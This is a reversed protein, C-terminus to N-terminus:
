YLPVDGANVPLEAGGLDRGYGLTGGGGNGWCRVGGRELLVCTHTGGAVIQIAREGIEVDPPPMEGQEDGLSLWEGVEPDFTPIGDGYGLAGYRLYGWCRVKGNALLACTHSDGTAVQVAPGGLQVPGIAHPAEDDGIDETSEHGLKGFEGSGWCSVEGSELVACTHASRLTIQVARGGVDLDGAEALGVPEGYGYGSAVYDGTWCRVSGSDLLVCAHMPGLVMRRIAKQSAAREPPGYYWFDHRPRAGYCRVEGDDMKVCTRGDGAFVDVVPRDLPIEPPPMEGPEDGVAEGFGDIAFGLVGPSGFEWGWCRVNGRELIACTHYPGAALQVARGGLDVDGYAGAPEDDGVDNRHGYGLVGFHNWGWCRVNGADFRACTHAEGAVIQIVKPSRCNAYCGDDESGNGDDCDEGPDVIGDGCRPAACDSRCMASEVDSNAAGDDCEEGPDLVGDGCQHLTCDIRCAGAASDSNLAGDDCEEEGVHLAGDGCRALKCSALCGDQDSLNADDCEEAGGVLGDGCFNGCRDGVCDPVRDNSCSVLHLSLALVSLTRYTAM